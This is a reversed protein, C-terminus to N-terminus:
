EPYTFPETGSWADTGAEYTAALSALDARVIVEHALAATYSSVTVSMDARRYHVYSLIEPATPLEFDEIQAVRYFSDDEARVVFVEAPIESAVTISWDLQFETESVITKTVEGTLTVAM